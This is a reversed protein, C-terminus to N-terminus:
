AKKKVVSPNAIEIEFDFIIDWILRFPCRSEYLGDRDVKPHLAKRM